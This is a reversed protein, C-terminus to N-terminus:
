RTALPPMRRTASHGGRVAAGLGIGPLFRAFVWRDHMGRWRVKAFEALAAFVVDWGYPHTLKADLVAGDYGNEYKGEYAQELLIVAEDHAQLESLTRPCPLGHAYLHTVFQAVVEHFRQHSFPRADDASFRAVARDIPEDIHAVVYREDLYAAMTRIVDEARKRLSRDSSPM